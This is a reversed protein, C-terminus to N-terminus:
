DYKALEKDIQEILSKIQEQVDPLGVESYALHVRRASLLGILEPSPQVRIESPADSGEFGLRNAYAIEALRERILFVSIHNEVFDRAVIEDETVDLLLAPFGALNARLQPNSLLNLNGSAMLADLSSTSVDSTRWSVVAGLLEGPIVVPSDGASKLLTILSEVNNALDQISALVEDLALLSAQFEAHISLLQTREQQHEKHDSWLTDIWFALLISTVIVAGETLIRAWSVQQTNAM